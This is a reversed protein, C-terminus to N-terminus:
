KIVFPLDFHATKGTTKDRVTTEVVYEGTPLRFTYTVTGVVGRNRSTSGVSLNDFNKQGGIVKGDPTRIIFDMAWNTQWLDGRKEWGYGATHFHAVMPEGSNFSNSDRRSFMGASPPRTIWLAQRVTLPTIAWIAESAKDLMDLADLPKGQAVLADAQRGLEEATQARVAAPSGCCVVAATALVLAWRM